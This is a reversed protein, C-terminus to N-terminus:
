DCLEPRRRWLQQRRERRAGEHAAVDGGRSAVVHRGGVGRPGPQGAKGGQSEAGAVARRRLSQPSPRPTVKPFQKDLIATLRVAHQAFSDIAQEGESVISEILDAMITPPPPARPKVTHRRQSDTAREPRRVSLARFRGCVCVIQVSACVCLVLWARWWVSDATRQARQPGRPSSLGGVCVSSTDLFKRCRSLWGLARAVGRCGYVTRSLRM